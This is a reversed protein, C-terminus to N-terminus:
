TARAGDGNECGKQHEPGQDRGSDDQPGGTRQRTRPEQTGRRLEWPQTQGSGWPSQGAKRVAATRSPVAM